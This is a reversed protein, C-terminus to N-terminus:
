SVDIVEGISNRKRKKRENLILDNHILKFSLIDIFDYFDTLGETSVQHTAVYELRLACYADTVCMGFLTAFM